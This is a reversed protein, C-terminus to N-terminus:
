IDKKKFSLYGIARWFVIMIIAYLVFLGTTIWYGRLSNEFVNMPVNLLVLLPFGLFITIASGYILDEAVTTEFQPDTVRVLVLGSNITGTMEGFHGLFREFPYNDYGRYASWYVIGLTVLAGAISMLTIPLWYMAVIKMSIATISGLVLYDIMLGASRNMLGEDIVYARKTLDFIKRISLSVLIAVIFHFSWLTAVFGDMGNALMLGAFFNVILYTLLYAGGILAIQFALPEIAETALTLKGAIPYETDKLVGTRMDTTVQDLGKIVKLKNHRLGWQLLSLGGFFAVLYGITAFTLGVFGGGEFNFQEWTHGMAYALGPGMGFGLPLLLGIGPFLDPWITYILIFAIIMGSVAQGLYCLLSAISKSLPGKGWVTKEKRLGMAIFTLALLHYVYIGLREGDMPLINLLEAGLILGFFGGLINNPILFKQFIPIYRRFATGVLLFLSLYTFDLIVDKLDVSLEWPNM